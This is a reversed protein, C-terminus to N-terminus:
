ARRQSTIRFQKPTVGMAKGFAVCFSSPSSFGLRHAIEKLSLRTDALLSRAKIMRVERVYDGITRGTSAKFARALHRPSIECLRALQDISPCHDVMGEVYDTIRRMQWAALAARVPQAPLSAQRLYRALDVMLLLATAEIAKERGFGSESVESALRYMDRKIMPAQVNLTAALQGATWDGRLGTTQEFISAAFECYIGRYSEAGGPGRVMMRMGRPPFVIDGVEVCPGQRGEADLYCSRSYNVQPTLSMSLSHVGIELVGEFPEPQRYTRVEVHIGPVSTRADVTYPIATSSM